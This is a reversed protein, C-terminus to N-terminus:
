KNVMTLVINLEPWTGLTMLGPENQCPDVQFCVFAFLIRIADFNLENKLYM